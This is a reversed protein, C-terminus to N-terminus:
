FTAIFDLVSAECRTWPMNPLSAKILGAYQRGLLRTDGLLLIGKDTETRLLRGVGQKLSIITQPLLYDDFPSHGLRKLYDMRGALLPENVNAFPLKDIAVCSLAEGKVDVGEWFSGTGLLVLNTQERFRDLLKRKDETGQVLVQYPCHKPLHEAMWNLAKYSTFLIFTKGGLAMIVKLVKQM